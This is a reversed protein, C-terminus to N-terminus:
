KEYGSLLNGVLFSIAAVMGGIALTSGNLWVSFQKEPAFQHAKKGDKGIRMVDSQNLARAVMHGGM